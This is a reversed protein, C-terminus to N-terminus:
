KTEALFIPKRFTWSPLAHCAFTACSSLAHWTSKTENGIEVVDIILFDLIDLCVVNIFNNKSFFILTKKLNVLIYKNTNPIDGLICFVYTVFVIRLVFLIKFYCLPWHQFFLFSIDFHLNNHLFKNAIIM